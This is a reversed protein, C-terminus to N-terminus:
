FIATNGNTFVYCTQSRAKHLDFMNSVYDILCADNWPVHLNLGNQSAYPYFLNMDSTCKLYCFINKICNWHHRIPASNYKALLSLAFSIDSRTCKVLYLLSGIESLYPVGPEL